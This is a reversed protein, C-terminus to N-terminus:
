LPNRETTLTCLWSYSGWCHGWEMQFRFHLEFILIACPARCSAIFFHSSKCLCFCWQQLTWLCLIFHEDLIDILFPLVAHVWRKKDTYSFEPFISCTEAESIYLFSHNLIWSLILFSVIIFLPAAFMSILSACSLLGVVDRRLSHNSIQLSGFVVVAWLLFVLLLMLWMKM